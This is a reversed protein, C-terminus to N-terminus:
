GFAKSATRYENSIHRSVLKGVTQGDMEVTVSTMTSATANEVAQPLADISASLAGIEASLNQLIGAADGTPMLPLSEGNPGTITAPEGSPTKNKIADIAEQLKELNYEKYAELSYDKEGYSLFPFLFYPQTDKSYGRSEAWADMSQAERAAQEYSSQAAGVSAGFLGAGVVPHGTAVAAVAGAASIVSSIEPNSNIYNFFSELTAKLENVSSTFSDFSIGSLDEFFSVINPAVEEFKKWDTGFTIIAALATGLPNAVALLAAFAIAMSTVAPTVVASNDKLWGLGTTIASIIGPITTGAGALLEMIVTGATSLFPKIADIGDVINSFDIGTLDEFFAVVSPATQEFAQWDTGFAIIGALATGLPHTAASLVTFAAAMPIIAAAVTKGNDKVWQLATLATEKIGSLVVGAGDLLDTIFGKIKEATVNDGTLGNWLGALFKSGEEVAWEGFGSVGRKFSAVAASALAQWKGVKYANKLTRYLDFRQMIRDVAVIIQEGMRPALALLNSMLTTGTEFLNDILARMDKGTGLGIIVNRWSAKFANFSGAITKAAEEATTGTIGMETQVVHIAEYVDSLSNISYRVNKGQARQIAEADRLLREMETRTGGYGLRLNDLMAYNQKAFGQYANMIMSMDTGFKNANDSMDQVAMDAYQAAKVTDGGVSKLLSSSFGLVTQMYQNADLGASKYAANANRIVTAASNKFLTEIGGMLQEAEAYANVAGKTFSAMARATQKSIDYIAHGFAITRASVNQMGGSVTKMGSTLASVMSKGSKTASTIGKNFKASDLSLEAYLEFLKAM